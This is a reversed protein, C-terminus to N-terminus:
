IHILSLQCVRCCSLATTAAAAGAAAASRRPRSSSRRPRSRKPRSSNCGVEDVCLLQRRPLAGQRPRVLCHLARRQPRSEVLQAAQDHLGTQASAYLLPRSPLIPPQPCVCCYEDYIEEHTSSADMGGAVRDLLMSNSLGMAGGFHWRGDGQKGKGPQPDRVAGHNRESYQRVRDISSISTECLDAVTRKSMDRALMNLAVRATHRDLVRGKTISM